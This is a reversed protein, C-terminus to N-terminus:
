SAGGGCLSMAHLTNIAADIQETIPGTPRRDSPAYREADLRDLLDDLDRSAQSELARRLISALRDRDHEADPTPHARLLRLEGAFDPLPERALRARVLVVLVALVGVGALAAGGVVWPSTPRPAAAPPDIPGAPAALDDVSAEEPLVSEVRIAIPTTTLQVSGPAGPAAFSALIPPITYEGDLFPELVLTDTRVARGEENLSAEPLPQDVVTWGAGEADLAVDRVVMGAPATAQITLTLRDVTRLTTQDATAVLSAGDRSASAEAADTAAPSESERTCAWPAVAFAALLVFLIPRAPRM